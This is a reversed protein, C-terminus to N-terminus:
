ANQQRLAAFIKDMRNDRISMEWHFGNEDEWLWDWMNCFRRAEEIDDFGMLERETGGESEIM